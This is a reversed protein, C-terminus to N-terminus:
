SSYVYYPFPDTANIAIRSSFIRRPPVRLTQRVENCSLTLIAFNYLGASSKYCNKLFKISINCIPNSNVLINMIHPHADTWRM